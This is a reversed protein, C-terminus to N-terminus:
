GICLMCGRCHLSIDKLATHRDYTATCASYLKAIAWNTRIHGEVPHLDRSCYAMNWDDHNHMHLAGVHQYKQSKSYQRYGMFFRQFIVFLTPFIGSQTSRDPAINDCRHFTVYFLFTITFRARPKWSQIHCPPRPTQNQCLIRVTQYLAM